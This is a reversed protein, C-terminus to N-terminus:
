SLWRKKRRYHKVEHFSMREDRAPIGFYFERVESNEMLRESTDDLVVAGNEMIYGYQTVSLAKFANQEVLLIACRKERNIRRLIEFIEDVIIPSLGLSPEDLLLLRPEGM